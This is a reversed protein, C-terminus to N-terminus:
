YDRVTVQRRRSSGEERLHIGDWASDMKYTALGNEWELNWVLDGQRNKTMSIINSAALSLFLADIQKVRVTKSSYDFIWEVWYPRSSLVTSLPIKMDVPHPFATRGSASEFFRVIESRFVPLHTKHWSKTCMACNGCSVERRADVNTDLTGDSM